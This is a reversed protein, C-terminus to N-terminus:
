YAVPQDFEIDRLIFRAYPKEEGDVVWTAEICTSLRLSHRGQYDLLHGMWTRARTEDSYRQAQSRVLEGRENFSM